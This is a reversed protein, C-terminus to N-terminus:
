LIVEVTAAGAEEDLSVALAGGQAYGPEREEGDVQVVQTTGIGRLELIVERREPAYSGEREGLRITVRDHSADCSLARRAYEGNEYGFGDGADEYLTSEGAGEAPHIRFTL